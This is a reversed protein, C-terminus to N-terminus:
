QFLIQTYASVHLEVGHHELTQKVWQLQPLPLRKPNHPSCLSRTKNESWSLRRTVKDPTPTWTRHHEGVASCPRATLWLGLQLLMRLVWMHQRWVSKQIDPSVLHIPCIFLNIVGLYWDQRARWLLAQTVTFLVQPKRPPVTTLFGGALAPSVPELGPRPLDWM